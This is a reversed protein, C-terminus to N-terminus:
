HGGSGAPPASGSSAPPPAEENAGTGGTSGGASGWSTIDDDNGDQKDPGSSWLDYSTADGHKGASEYHWAQGWRDNPMQAELYPHWKAAEADASLASKDWLVKIGEEDTPYRDFDFRFLKLGQRINNLDIKALDRKAEDRREMVAYGVLGMLALVIAIVIMVEILTFAGRRM